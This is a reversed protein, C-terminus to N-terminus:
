SPKKTQNPGPILKAPYEKSFWRVWKKRPVDRQHIRGMRNTWFSIFGSWRIKKPNKKDFITLHDGDKLVHLGTYDWVYPEPRIYKSEWFAWNHGLGQENWSYCIGELVLPKKM